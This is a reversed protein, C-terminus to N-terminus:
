VVRANPLRQGLLGAAPREQDVVAVDVRRVGSARDARLPLEGDISRDDVLVAGDVLAHVRIVHDVPQPRDEVM